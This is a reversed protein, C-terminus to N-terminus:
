KYLIWGTIENLAVAGTDTDAAGTTLAYAIGTTFAAGPPVDVTFGAGAANGPIGITAVPVDTGVTPASAKNYLHLYRIAANSNVLVISYINGASAKLSTANTSAASLVKGITAGGTATANTSVSLNGSADVATRQGRTTADEIGCVIARKSDMRAAGIDNETLATGAVEDYYYGVVTVSSSNDTFAGNDIKAGSGQSDQAIAVRVVGTGVTGNGTTITNGNIQVLNISQNAALSVPLAVGSAIGQVSIVDTSSVGATGLAPQKAATALTASTIAVSANLLNVPFGNSGDVLTASGASGYAMKITQWDVGAVQDTAVPRKSAGVGPDVDISSM